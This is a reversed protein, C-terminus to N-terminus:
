VLIKQIEAQLLPADKVGKKCEFDKLIGQKKFYEELPAMETRYKKIREAVAAPKDAEVQGLDGGCRDCKTKDKTPLVPDLDYGDTSIKSIDYALHCRVCERRGGFKEIIIGENGTINFVAKIKATEKLREVQAPNEPFGDLIIGKIEPVTQLFFNRLTEIKTTEDLPQNDAKFKRIKDAIPNIDRRMTMVTAYQELSFVSLHLKEAIEKALSSKGSGPIGMFMILPQDYTFKFSEM